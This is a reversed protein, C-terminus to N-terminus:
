PVQYVVMFAGTKLTVSGCNSTCHFDIQLTGGTGGVVVVGTITVLWQEGLAGFSFGTTDHIDTGTSTVCGGPLNAGAENSIDTCVIPLSSGAPLAHIQFDFKEVCSGCIVETYAVFAYNTNASLAFFLGTSRVTTSSTTADSTTRVLSSSGAPVASFPNYWFTNGLSTVLGVAGSSTGAVMANYRSVCTSSAGCNGTPVMSQVVQSSGSPVSAPLPSSSPSYVTGNNAYKLIIAIVASTVTGANTVSLGAAGSGSFVLSELNRQNVLLLAQQAAQASQAQVSSLYVQAGLGAMLVVIFLVTGIISAVGKRRRRSHM